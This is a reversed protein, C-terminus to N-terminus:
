SIPNEKEWEAMSTFPFDKLYRRLKAETHHLNIYTKFKRFTNMPLRPQGPDIERPHLYCIVPLGNRNLKKTEKAIWTYPFFRFYGGGSFCYRKGLLSSISIPFEKLSGNTSSLMHPRPEASAIGGHGRSAPFVSSDYTYEALLLSDVAWKTENTISFGPARYGNIQVQAVDEISLKANRIDQLFEAQTQKYVLQHTTGHSAIEHGRQKAEVILQPFRKAIWELFFCTSITGTESLIDLLRIFNKEVRSPYTDWSDVSPEAEIDLIHFWDEVDITLINKM